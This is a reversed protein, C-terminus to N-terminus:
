FYKKYVFAGIGVLAFLGITIAKQHKKLWQMMPENYAKYAEAISIETLEAGRRIKKFNFREKSGRSKLLDILTDNHIKGFVHVTYKKNGQERFNIARMEVLDGDWASPDKINLDYYRMPLRLISRMADVAEIEQWFEKWLGSPHWDPNLSLQNVLTQWARLNERVRKIGRAYYDNWAVDNYKKIEELVESSEKLVESVSLYNDFRCEANYTLINNSKLDDYLGSLFDINRPLGSMYEDIKKHRGKQIMDEVICCANDGLIKMLGHLEARSKEVQEVSVKHRLEHMVDIFIDVRRSVDHVLIRMNIPTAQMNTVISLVFGIILLGNRMIKM